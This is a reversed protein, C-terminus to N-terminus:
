GLITDCDTSGITTDSNISLARPLDEVRLTTDQRHGERGRTLPKDNRSLATTDKCPFHVYKWTRRNLPGRRRSRANRKHALPRQQRSRGTQGELQARHSPSQHSPEGPAIAFVPEGNSRRLQDEQCLNIRRARTRYRQPRRASTSTHNMGVV